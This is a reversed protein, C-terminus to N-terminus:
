KLDHPTNVNHFFPIQDDGLKQTTALDSHVCAEIIPQLALRKESLAQRMLPLMAPVYLGANPIFPRNELRQWRSFYSPKRHFM